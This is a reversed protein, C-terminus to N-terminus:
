GAPKVIRLLIVSEVDLSDRAVVVMRDGRIVRASSRMGTPLSVRGLFRGNLEFVDLMRGEKESTVPSSWLHGTDDFTFPNLAPMSTPIRSMDIKGGQKVFARADEEIRARDQRTVPVRPVERQVVREVGGRFGHRDLRYNATNAVWVSGEPDFNWIQSGSFPIALRTVTSNRADGRRVEFAETKFEPLSFTDPRQLTTDSRLVVHHFSADPRIVVGIDYLRGARDFGGPWPSSTIMSVRPKTRVLKGTTDYVAFRANGSDLVWLNGDPAFDMGAIGAFERPGGGKAGVSRVHNGRGDFVVLQNRQGDAIWVRGMADLAVDVVSGFIETEDGDVSGIRAEEM